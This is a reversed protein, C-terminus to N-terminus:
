AKPQKTQEIFGIEEGRFFRRTNKTRAAELSNLRVFKKKKEVEDIRTFSITPLHKVFLVCLILYLVSPIGRIKRRKNCMKEEVKRVTYM